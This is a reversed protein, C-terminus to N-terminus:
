KAAGPDCGIWAQGPHAARRRRAHLRGARPREGPRPQRGSGPLPDASLRLGRAPRRCISIVSEDMCGWMLELGAPEAVQGIALAPFIGGCKMLKINFIGCVAPPHALTAADGADHLSEDAAVLERLDQSLSRLDILTAAPLPQEILELRLVEQQQWLQNTEEFGYGQNADVRIEIDQGVRERLRHLM